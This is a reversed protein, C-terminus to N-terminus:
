LDNQIFTVRPMRLHLIIFLMEPNRGDRPLLVYMWMKRLILREVKSARTTNYIDGGFTFTMAASISFGKYGVSTTLAGQLFPVTNGLAVKDKVDYSFTYSGDKKIFIEQGTAPDIGLSPVAYIATSSEGEELQVKPAAVGTERM